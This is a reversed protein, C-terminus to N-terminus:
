YSQKYLKIAKYISFLTKFARSPFLFSIVLNIKETQKEFLYYDNKLIPWKKKYDNYRISDILVKKYKERIFFDNKNLMYLEGYVNYMNQIRQSLSILSAVGGGHWRYIGTFNNLSIGKGIKLLLYFMHVDRFYKYKDACNYVSLLSDTRVMTTLIQTVWTRIFLGLDIELNQNESYYPYAYEKLYKGSKQEYIHYRTCCFVYERNKELFDVQMQLKLPNTWYDDGECMAVYKGRMHENMIRRISGDHKSYQNETEYIPKIISPYKEAYERIIAVSGDTSADDHVVVEFPFNTKQMVFGELCQRLYPEHNYVLCRITVLPFMESM